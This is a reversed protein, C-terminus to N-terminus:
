SPSQLEFLHEDQVQNRLEGTTDTAIPQQHGNSRHLIEGRRHFGSVSWTDSSRVTIQSYHFCETHLEKYGSNKNPSATSKPIGPVAFVTFACRDFESQDDSSDGNSPSRVGSRTHVWRSRQRRRNPISAILSQPYTHAPESTPKETVIFSPNVKLHVEYCWWQCSQNHGQDVLVDKSPLRLLHLLRRNLEDLCGVINFSVNRILM